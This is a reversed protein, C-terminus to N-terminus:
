LNRAFFSFFLMKLITKGGFRNAKINLSHRMKFTIFKIEFTALKQTGRIFLTIEWFITSARFPLPLTLVSKILSCHNFIFFLCDISM